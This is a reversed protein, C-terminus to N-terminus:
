EIVNGSMSVSSAALNLQCQSNALTGATGLSKGASWANGQDNMLYIVNTPPSYQLYCAGAGDVGYNILMYMSSIFQAGNANSSTFAFTQSGGNGSAPSVSVNVPPQPTVITVYATAGVSYGYYNNADHAYLSLTCVNPSVGVFTFTNSSTGNPTIYGTSSGWTGSPYPYATSSCSPTYDFILSGQWGFHSTVTVTFAASQNTDVAQSPPSVSMTLYPSAVIMSATASATVYFYNGNTDQAAFSVNCTTNSTPAYDTYTITYTNNGYALRFQNSALMTAVPTISWTGGMYFCSSATLAVADYNWSSTTLTLTFTYGQNPQVTQSSPSVSLTLGPQAHAAGVFTLGACLWLAVGALRRERIARSGKM